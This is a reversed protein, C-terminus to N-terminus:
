STGAPPLPDVTLTVGAEAWEEPYAAAFAVAAGIFNRMTNQAFAHQGRASAPQLVVLISARGSRTGKPLAAFIINPSSEYAGQLQPIKGEADTIITIPIM